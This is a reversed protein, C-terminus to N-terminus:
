ASCIGFLISSPDSQRRPVRRERFNHCNFYFDALALGDLSRQAAQFLLEIAFADDFVDAAVAIKFLRRYRLAAAVLNRLEVIHKAVLPIVLAWPNFRLASHDLSGRQLPLKKLPHHSAAAFASKCLRYCLSGAQKVIKTARSASGYCHSPTLDAAVQSESFSDPQVQLVSVTTGVNSSGLLHNIRSVRENRPARNDM